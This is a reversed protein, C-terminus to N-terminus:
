HFQTLPAYYIFAAIQYFATRVRELDILKIAIVIPENNGLNLKAAKVLIKFVRQEQAVLNGTLCFVIIAM